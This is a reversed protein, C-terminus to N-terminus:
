SSPSSVTGRGQRTSMGGYQFWQLYAMTCKIGWDVHWRWFIAHMRSNNCAYINALSLCWGDLNLLLWCDIILGKEDQYFPNKISPTILVTELTVHVIWEVLWSSYLNYGDVKNRKVQLRLSQDGDNNDFMNILKYFMYIVTGVFALHTRCVLTSSITIQLM